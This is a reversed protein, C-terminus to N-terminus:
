RVRACTPSFRSQAKGAAHQSFSATSSAMPTVVYAPKTLTALWRRPLEMQFNKWGWRFCSEVTTWLTMPYPCRWESTVSHRRVAM